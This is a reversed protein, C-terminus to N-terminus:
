CLHGELGSSAPVLALDRGEVGVGVRVGAGWLSVPTPWQACSVPTVGPGDWPAAAPREPSALGLRLVAPFAVMEETMHTWSATGSEPTQVPLFPHKAFSLHSIPHTPAHTHTHKCSQVVTHAHTGIHAATYNQTPVYSQTLAQRDLVFPQLEVSSLSM